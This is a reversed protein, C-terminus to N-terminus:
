FVPATVAREGLCACSLSHKGTKLTFGLVRKDERRKERGKGVRATLRGDDDDDDDNGLTKM